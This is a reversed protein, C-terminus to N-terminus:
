NKSVTQHGGGSRWMSALGEGGWGRIAGWWWREIVLAQVVRCVILLLSMMVFYATNGHERTVQTGMHPNCAGRGSLTGLRVSVQTGPCPTGLSRLTGLRAALESGDVTERSLVKAATALRLAESAVPAVEGLALLLRLVALMGFLPM